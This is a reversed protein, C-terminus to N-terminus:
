GETYETNIAEKINKNMDVKLKQQGYTKLNTNIAIGYERVNKGKRIFTVNRNSKTEM